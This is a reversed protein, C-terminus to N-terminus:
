RKGTEQRVGVAHRKKPKKKAKKRGLQLTKILVLGKQLLTTTLSRRMIRARKFNALCIKKQYSDGMVWQMVNGVEHLGGKKKKTLPRSGGWQMRPRLFDKSDLKGVVLYERNSPLFGPTDVMSRGQTIRSNEDGTKEV